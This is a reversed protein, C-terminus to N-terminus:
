KAAKEADKQLEFRHDDDEFRPNIIDQPQDITTLQSTRLRQRGNITYTSESRIVVYDDRIYLKSVLSDPENDVTLSLVKVPTGDVVDSGLVTYNLKSDTGAACIKPNLLAEYRMPLSAQAVVAEDKSDPSAQIWKGERQIFTNGRVLIARGTPKGSSDFSEIEVGLPRMNARSRSSLVGDVTDEQVYGALKGLAEAQCFALERANVTSPNGKLPDTCHDPVSAHASPTSGPQASLGVGDGCAALALALAGVYAGVRGKLM